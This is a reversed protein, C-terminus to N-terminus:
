RPEVSPTARTTARVVCTVPSPRSPKWWSQHSRMAQPMATDTSDVRSARGVAVAGTRGSSAALAACQTM